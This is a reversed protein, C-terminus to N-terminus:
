LESPPPTPGAEADPAADHGETFTKMMAKQANRFRGVFGKNQGLILSLRYVCDALRKGQKLQLATHIDLALGALVFVTAEDALRQQDETLKEPEVKNGLTGSDTTM